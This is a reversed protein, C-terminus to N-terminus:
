VFRLEKSETTKIVKPIGFMDKEGTLYEQFVEKIFQEKENKPETNTLVDEVAKVDAHEDPNSVIHYTYSNSSGSSVGILDNIIRFVRDSNLSQNIYERHDFDDRESIYKM